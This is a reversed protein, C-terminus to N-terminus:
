MKVIRYTEYGTIANFSRDLYDNTHGSLKLDSASKSYIWMAHSFRDAGAKKFQIVDGSTSNNIINTKSTSSYVAHSRALYDYLDTVVTWSSSRSWTNDPRKKIFWYKTDSQLTPYSADSVQSKGGAFLIQSVFNTCDNSYVPYFSNYSKYHKEAYARANSVNLSGTVRMKPPQVKAAAEEQELIEQKVQGLSTNELEKMSFTSGSAELISVGSSYISFGNKSLTPELELEYLGLRYLYEAFYANFLHYNELSAMKEDTDNNM